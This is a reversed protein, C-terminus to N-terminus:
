LVTTIFAMTPYQRLFVLAWLLHLPTFEPEVFHRTTLEQWVFACVLPLAGFISWFHSCITPTSAQFHRNMIPAGLALFNHPDM